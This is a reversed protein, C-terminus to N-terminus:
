TSPPLTTDLQEADPGGDEEAPHRPPLRPLGPAHNARRGRPAGPRTRHDHRSTLWGSTPGADRNRTRPPSATRRAPRTPSCPRLATGALVTAGLAVHRRTEAERDNTRRRSPRSGDTPRRGAAAAAAAAAPRAAPGPDPVGDFYTSDAAGAPSTAGSSASARRVGAAAIDLCVQDVLSWHGGPWTPPRATAIARLPRRVVECYGCGRRRASGVRRSASTRGTCTSISGAPVTTSGSSGSSRTATPRCWRPSSTASAAADTLGRVRDRGGSRARGDDLRPALDLFATIWAPKVRGAQLRARLRRTCAPRRRALGAPAPGRQDAHDRVDDGDTTGGHRRRAAHLRAAALPPFLLTVAPNAAVNASRAAVPRWRGAARRRRAGARGHGGQGARRGVHHAPLRRRLEALAPPLDAVDVPISMRGVTRGTVLGRVRRRRDPRHVGLRRRHLVGARVARGRAVATRAGLYGGALNCVGMLLGSRGSCRARRCSSAPARRPQHGLEGAPGQRLGRPLRLRAPRGAHVRLLQRHRTRARRRLLRDGLGALMAAATHRHGAFRLVTEEGLEPKFVVYAGVVILAVLVIPEFAERPIQFAVLAGAVSGVFALVMLPLFTKPDPRIRRYYTASSSRPGASRRSSTPPWSRSRRRAGAARAAAGAAPDARRRRRGRRRVRGGARGARAPRPRDATPDDM